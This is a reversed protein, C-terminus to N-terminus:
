CLLFPCTTMILVLLDLLSTKPNTKQVKFQYSNPLRLPPRRQLCISADRLVEYPVLGRAFNLTFRDPLEEMMHDVARRGATILDFLMSRLHRFVLHDETGFATISVIGVGHGCFSSSLTSVLLHAQQAPLSFTFAVSCLHTRHSDLWIPGLRVAEEQTILTKAALSCFSPKKKRDQAKVARTLDNCLTQASSRICPVFPGRDIDLSVHLLLADQWVSIELHASSFSRQHMNRQLVLTKIENKTITHAM